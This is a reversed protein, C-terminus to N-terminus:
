RGDEQIRELEHTVYNDVEKLLIERKNFEEGNELVFALLMRQIRGVVPGPELGFHQILEGGTVALSHTSLTLKEEQQFARIMEKIESITYPEKGLNGYHDAIRLRLFDRWTLGYTTLKAVLKRISKPSSRKLVTHMHLQTLGVVADVWENSFKLDTLMKQNIEAGLDHHCIFSRDDANYAAPKGIDHLYGALKVMPYKPSIADGTLMLHHFVDEPHFNGGDHKWCKALDESIVELSDMEKLAEFFFSAYKSEMAKTVELQIRELKVQNLLYSMTSATRQCSLTTYLGKTTFRAARLIRVPDEKIRQEAAGVFRIQGHKIDEMGQFPDILDGDLSMAIANM